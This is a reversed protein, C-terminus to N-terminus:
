KLLRDVQLRAEQFIVEVSSAFTKDTEAVVVGQQLIEVNRLPINNVMEEQLVLFYGRYDQEPFNNGKSPTSIRIRERLAVIEPSLEVPEDLCKNMEELLIEIKDILIDVLNDISIIIYLIIDVIVEYKQIKQAVESAPFASLPNTKLVGLLIKAIDITAVTVEAFRRLLTTRKDIILLTQQQKELQAIATELNFPPKVIAIAGPKAVQRKGEKIALAIAEEPTKPPCGEFDPVINSVINSSANSIFGTAYGIASTALSGTVQDLSGTLDNLDTDKLDELKKKAADKADELEKTISELVDEVKNKALYKADLMLNYLQQM